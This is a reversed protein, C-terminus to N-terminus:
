NQTFRLGFRRIRRGHEEYTFAFTFLPCSEFLNSQWKFVGTHDIEAFNMRTNRNTTLM